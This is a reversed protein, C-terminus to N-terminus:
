RKRRNPLPFLRTLRRRWCRAPLTRRAAQPQHRLRCAKGRGTIRSIASSRRGTCSGGSRCITPTPPRQTVRNDWIAVDFTRQWRWRM